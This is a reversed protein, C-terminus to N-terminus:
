GNRRDRVAQRQQEAAMLDAFAQQAEEDAGLRQVRSRLEGIRRVLEGEVVSLVVGAAYRATHEDSEVPLPSVAYETVLAAVPEPAADRVADIWEQPAMTVAVSMGGAARVADHLARHAPVTFADKPLGDVEAAPVLRPVQLICELAEREAKTVPDRADRRPVPAAAARGGRQSGRVASLVRGEPLALWGALSRAYEDRLSEDRIRGVVPAALDLGRVRGEATSLDADRLRSRIAFEFLPQRAAILERVAEDGRAQRLECPDMGDQAVAIFTQGQFRQDEEFAKLAAKQGAADGDFTFVVSGANWSDDGILRRVIRIHDAGFATGCTAVATAVGSLHCAMVDTYGEVVVV